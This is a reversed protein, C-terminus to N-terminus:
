KCDHLCHLLKPRIEQAGFDNYVSVMRCEFMEKLLLIRLM